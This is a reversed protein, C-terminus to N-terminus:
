PCYRWNIARINAASNTEYDLQWWAGGEVSARYRIIETGDEQKYIKGTGDDNSYLGRNGSESAVQGMDRFKSLVFAASDGVGTGRPAQFVDTAEFRLEVLVWESKPKNMIAYGWSYTYKRCETSFDDLMLTESLTGEGYTDQFETLTTENLVLGSLSDAPTYATLPYPSAAIKYKIEMTKSLKGYRNVAVARLTVHDGTPLLIPDDDFKPSDADPLSGDVTYYIVIGDEDMNDLGPKLRVKQRSKYAGPALTARPMRPSPMVIKYSAKLEDSVLDGNVAVARLNHTGEDLFVRSTYKKGEGPLKATENFTYYVDFGQYSYVEIYKKSEYYGGTLDVKPPAPLLDGRQTRFTEDGTKEWALKMLEAAKVLDKGDGSAQLIRIHNVYAEPRSPTETYIQEYLAAADATRGDAEYANGLLLLGDPDPHGEEEDLAKAREFSRIAASVDGDNLQEEGVVWLATANAELGMRAMVRQGAETRKLFFWGGAVILIVAAAALFSIKMWNVTSVHRTKRNEYSKAFAMAQEAWIGSEDYVPRNRREFSPEPEEPAEGLAEDSAKKSVKEWAGANRQESSPDIEGEASRTDVVRPETGASMEVAAHSAGGRRRRVRPERTEQATQTEKNRNDRTERARKGQRIAQAGRQPEGRDQQLLEGCEPCIIEDTEAYYGCNPCQM